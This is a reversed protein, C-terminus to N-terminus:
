AAGTGHWPEFPCGAAQQQHWSSTGAVASPQRRCGAASLRGNSGRHPLYEMAEALSICGSWMWVHMTSSSQALFSPVARWPWDVQNRRLWAGCWFHPVTRCSLSAASGAKPVSVSPEAGSKITLVPTDADYGKATIYAAAAEKAGSKEAENAESGVWVFLSTFSDLLFVDEETLDTQSFDFVPDIALSGTSNSCQFLM